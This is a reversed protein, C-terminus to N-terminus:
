VPMCREECVIVGDPRRFCVTRRVEGPGCPGAVAVRPPAAAALHLADVRGSLGHEKLVANMRRFVKAQTSKPAEHLKLRKASKAPGKSKTAKKKAM